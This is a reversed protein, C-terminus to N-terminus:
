PNPDLAPRWSQQLPPRSRLKQSCKLKLKVEEGNRPFLLPLASGLRPWMCAVLKGTVFLELSIASFDYMQWLEVAFMALM